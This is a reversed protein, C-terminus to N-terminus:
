PSTTSSRSTRSTAPSRAWPSRGNSTPSPFTRREIRVGPVEAEIDKILRTFAPQFNDLTFYDWWTLTVTGSEKDSGCSTLASGLGLAAAGAGAARLLGRRDVPHSM